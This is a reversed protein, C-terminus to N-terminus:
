RVDSKVRYVGSVRIEQAHMQKCLNSPICRASFLHLDIRDRRALGDKFMGIISCIADTYM